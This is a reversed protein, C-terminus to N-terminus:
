NPWAGKPIMQEEVEDRVYHPVAGVDTSATTDLVSGDEYLTRQWSSPLGDDITITYEIARGGHLPNDEGEGKLWVSVQANSHFVDTM